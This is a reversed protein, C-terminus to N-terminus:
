SAAQTPAAAVLEAMDHGYFAALKALTALSPTMGDNGKELKSLWPYSIGAQAAAQTLSLGADKRWARLRGPDYLLDPM